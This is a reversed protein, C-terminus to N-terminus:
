QKHHLICTRIWFSKGPPGLSVNTKQKGPSESAKRPLKPIQIKQEGGEGRGGGKPGRM